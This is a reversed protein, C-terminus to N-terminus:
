SGFAADADKEDRWEPDEGGATPLSDAYADLDVIDYLVNGGSQKTPLHLTLLKSTSIGLYHAAAPAKMLRPPFAYTRQPRTM